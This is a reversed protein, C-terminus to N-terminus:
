LRVFGREGPDFPWLFLTQTAEPKRTLFWVAQALLVLEAEALVM